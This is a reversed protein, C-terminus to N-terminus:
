AIKEYEVLVGGAWHNPLLLDGLEILVSVAVNTALEVPRFRTLLKAAGVIARLPPATQSYENDFYQVARSPYLLLKYCPQEKIPRFGQRRFRRMTEGPTEVGIHGEPEVIYKRYLGPYRQALRTLPDAAQAEIYHLTRGGPKLVRSIEKLVAEKEELPIHGLVDMSVVLDFSEAAFPLQALRAMLAFDYVAGAAKAAAHSLDLGVVAGAGAFFRWGGGCGLDLVRGRKGALRRLFFREKKVLWNRLSGNSFDTKAWREEHFERAPNPRGADEPHHDDAGMTPIPFAGTM